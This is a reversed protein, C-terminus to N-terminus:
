CEKGRKGHFVGKGPSIFLFTTQKLLRHALFLFLIIKQKLHKSSELAPFPAPRRSSGRSIAWSHLQHPFAPSEAGSEEKHDSQRYLSVVFSAALFYEETWCWSVATGYLLVSSGTIPRPSYSIKWNSLLISFDLPFFAKSPDYQFIIKRALGFFMTGNLMFYKMCEWIFHKIKHVQWFLVSLLLLSACVHYWAWHTCGESSPSVTRGKFHRVEWSSLDIMWLQVQFGTINM